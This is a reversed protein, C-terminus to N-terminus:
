LRAALSCNQDISYFHHVDEEIVDFSATSDRPCSLAFLRNLYSRYGVVWYKKTKGQSSNDTLATFHMLFSFTFIM